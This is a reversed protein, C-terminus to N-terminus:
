KGPIHRSSHKAASGASRLCFQQQDGRSALKFIMKRGDATPQAATPPPPAGRRENLCESYTEPVLPARVGIQNACHERSPALTIACAMALKFLVLERGELSAGGSRLCSAISGRLM